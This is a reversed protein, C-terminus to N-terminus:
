VTGINAEEKRLGDIWSDLASAPILRRTGVRVSAISGNALLEFLKTRGLGTAELVEDISYLLKRSARKKDDLDNM